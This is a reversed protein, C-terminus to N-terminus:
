NRKIPLRPRRPKFPRTSRNRDFSELNVQSQNRASLFDTGILKARILQEVLTEETRSRRTVQFTDARLPTVSTFDGAPRLIEVIREIVESIQPDGNMSSRISVQVEFLTGFDNRSIATFTARGIWIM